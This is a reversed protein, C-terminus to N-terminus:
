GFAEGQVAFARRARRSALATTGEATGIALRWTGSRARATARPRARATQGHPRPSRGKRGCGRARFAEVFQESMHAEGGAPCRIPQRRTTASFSIPMPTRGRRRPLTSEGGLKRAATRSSSSAQSRFTSASRAPCAGSRRASSRSAKRSTSPIQHVVLEFGHCELRSHHEDSAIVNMGLATAYFSAVTRLDKVFLVASVSASSMVNGSVIKWYSDKRVVKGDRFEYHDCGRVALTEGSRLTGTVLWESVGMTETAFHRADGYHVDPLMEFRTQIRRSRCEERRVPNGM